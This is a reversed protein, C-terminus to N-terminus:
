ISYNYKEFVPRWFDVYKDWAHCGFPLQFQNIMLARELSLEFAFKLGVQYSPINMVKKKRNVEISWFVDENFEHLGPKSLYYNIKDQSTRIIELFKDVRRLSFGGNGVKYEFQRPSPLGDKKMDYRTHLFRRLRSKIVKFAGKDAVPRIWPAGIYDYNQNCWHSLEDRFVFADLQYILIYEFGEFQQYFEASLMLKNYGDISEFYHNAFCVVNNINIIDSVPPLNTKEPKIIIKPYSALILECQKLAITDYASLSEKYIPIVIGVKRKSKIISM